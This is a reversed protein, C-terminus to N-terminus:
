SIALVSKIQSLQNRTQRYIEIETLATPSYNNQEYKISPGGVSQAADESQNTNIGSSISAAQDFSAAATIPTVNTLAALEGSQTRIQTLDLIPTIVLSPNLDNAVIDTIKHMSNKMVTIASNAANEVATIVNDTKTFGIALGEMSDKGIEIFVKSPSKSQLKRRITAVIEDVLDEMAKGIAKNKSVLGNLYGQASDVGAQYLNKAANTALAKSVNMLQKDLKNLSAVATKGGSLLQSAFSQDATGEKLLKNYTADDLGLKRLQELTAAYAGVAETQNKLAIMYSALQDISNGSSDLAKGDILTAFTARAQELNAQAAAISEATGDSGMADDLEKQARAINAKADLIETTMQASIDPSASFQDQFSSLADDRTQTAEKLAQRADKIKQAIKDYENTLSILKAKEDDLVKLLVLRTATSRKLLAENEDIIAQAKRIAETDPKKSARLKDIKDQESAITERAKTMAETLKNNLETYAGAIQDKSGRLGDAFGQGVFQGIQMMVKSPSATQFTTNFANIVGNSMTTASAYANPATQDLGIRLGETINKGLAIMVLSPSHVKFPLHMLGAVKGAISTATNYLSQAKSLLGFTMGDIIAFGLKASENRIQPSYTEVAIRLGRIFQVIVEGAANALKISNKGIGQIFSIILNVGATIVALSKRGVGTIFSIVADGAATVIKGLNKTVGEILSIVLGAGATIVKGVNTTIAQIFKVIIGYAATVVKGLNNAIGKLFSVILDGGATVIRGLNAALSRLFTVIIDVAMTVVQAINKRIGLLLAILLDIGSQIIKDQNDHLVKIIMVIIATMAEAVKPSSKIIVDLLSNIIKVMADVFMPATKAFAQVVSLMAIAFSTAIKPVALLFEQIAAILIGVATPAAIAIASLGTAILFIGAGALALGGGLLVMAAGLGLLAPVVPGLLVGAVGLVVMAAGLTVLGKIITSWRQKGLLILTPALISLGTAAVTLAAAGAFTGSMAHLAVALILLSAALTGIGKAIQKISMGGMKIVADSIKGLSLAVLLLGAGTLPLSKPMLRMGVAIAVLAGAVGALGRGMTRWDMTSFKTVANALINLGTAVAILGVGMVVMGPPMARAAAAIILLGGGVGVLGRTMEEWSLAAFAAVASALIRLGIALATIGFGARILGASGASLPKVALSIGLLLAGVGGLGRLLESWSLRSMALVSITLLDIAIALGVLGAIIIPLKLFGGTKAIKDLLAMAGILEGFMITMAGLSANLRKPDILSIVFVSAALLAIAIAIEKLTKAKLNNQMAKMSGNLGSFVGSINSLIGKSFGKTIQGLFSGKGLFEKFMLVLAAFLGTRIVELIVEFNMNSAAKGIATGVGQIASSIDEIISQMDISKDLSKTFNDWASTVGEIIAQLPTLATGIGNLQGSIGGTSFGSFLNGILKAFAKLADIPVSLVHGLDVFFNHLRNGKKLAEDISVLFDGISATLSLFGGSGGGVAHFLEAFVTFIGSIIQKGIDLVAFLGAFTRKLNNMTEPSPKLANAFDVFQKTLNFLDRGTTAPFIDRFAEKIPKLILGLNQFSTKIGDILLTRGGLAKWDSLVKNRANSNANIFGNVANSLATFTTKAEGFDGFIIQWTKAWGSGATEKAVDLVQSLTKVETAAHMATKATQQIAKIQEQNFGMAALESDKLDGTFQKLTTTLVDSTLWSKGKGTPVSLSERFSKGAITVNKMPGKLEVAGKKITGMAEATQALARQFVTGGMGANVVSNWDQLHVVGASIAQSLQYMATAAQDANSGSLAALNAIGKISATSTKLDVGAATFTGINKAMQSFNYITKDSFTNLEDLAANVDKLNAGSAETNALITQIANLNTAYEHFGDIIPGLTFAKAFQAGAQVARAAVNAFIALAAVSFYGLKQTIEDVGRSIHSLDIKGSAKAVEELGRGANQFHLASKLKDLASLTSNVGSEFKSSEFSMAVVKDDITTAM